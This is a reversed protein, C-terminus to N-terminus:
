VVRQFFTAADKSTADPGWKWFQSSNTCSYNGNARNEKKQLIAVKDFAYGRREETAGGTSLTNGMGEKLGRVADGLGTELNNRKELRQPAEKKKLPDHLVEETDDIRV